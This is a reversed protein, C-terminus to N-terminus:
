QQPDPQVVVKIELPEPKPQPAPVSSTTAPHAMSRRCAEHRRWPPGTPTPPTQAQEAMVDAVIEPEMEKAADAVASKAAEAIEAMFDALEPAAARAIADLGQNVPVFDYTVKPQASPRSKAAPPRTASLTFPSRPM